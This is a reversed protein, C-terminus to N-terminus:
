IIIFNKKKISYGYRKAELTDVFESMTMEVEEPMVFYETGTKDQAIGDALGNPTLAVTVKKDALTKRDDFLLCGYTFVEGFQLFLM